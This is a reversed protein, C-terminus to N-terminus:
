NLNDLTEVEHLPTWKLPNLSTDSHTRRFKYTM